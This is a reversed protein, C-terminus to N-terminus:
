EQDFSNRSAPLGAPGRADVNRVHRPFVLPQGSERGHHQSIDLEFSQSKAFQRFRRAKRQERQHPVLHPHFPPGFAVASPAIGMGLSPAIRGVEVGSFQIFLAGSRVNPTAHRPIVRRDESEARFSKASLNVQTGLGAPRNQDSKVLGFCTPNVRSTSQRRYGQQKRSRAWIMSVRSATRAPHRRGSATASQVAVM